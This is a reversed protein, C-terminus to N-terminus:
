FIELVGTSESNLLDIIDQKHRVLIEGLSQTSQNGVRFLIIKPPFGKQLMLNLFDEDNTVICFGNTKAWDWIEIDKAPAILERVSNIHVVAHFDQEPLLKTLRWSLNADLLLKIM